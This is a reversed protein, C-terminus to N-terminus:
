KRNLVNYELGKEDDKKALTTKLIPKLMERQVKSDCNEYAFFLSEIKDNFSINDWLCNQIEVTSIKEVCLFICSNIKTDTIKKLKDRLKYTLVYHWVGSKSFYYDQLIVISKSPILQTFFESVVKDYIKTTKMIDIFLIEIKNKNHKFDLINGKHVNVISKFSHIYNLFMDETDLNPPSKLNHRPFFSNLEYKGLKFLDFSDIVGSYNLNKTLGHALFATSGGLFCGLDLIKGEGTYVFETLYSLMKKESHTLMSPIKWIGNGKIVYTPDEWKREQLAIFDNLNM